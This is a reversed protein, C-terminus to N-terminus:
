CSWLIPSQKEERNQIKPKSQERYIVEGGTFIMTHLELAGAQAQAQAQPHGM